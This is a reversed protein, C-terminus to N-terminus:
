DNARSLPITPAGKNLTEPTLPALMLPHLIAFMHVAITPEQISEFSLLVEQCSFLILDWTEALTLLAKIITDSINNDCHGLLVTVHCVPRHKGPM